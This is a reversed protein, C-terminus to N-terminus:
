DVFKIEQTEETFTEGSELTATVRFSVNQYISDYELLSLNFHNGGADPASQLDILEEITYTENVTKIEFLETVDVSQSHEDPNLMSVQLSRVTNVYLFDPICDEAQIINFGMRLNSNAHALSKEIESFSVILSFNEKQVSDEIPTFDGDINVGPELSMGNYIMKKIGPDSNCSDYCSLLSQIFFGIILAIVIKKLM